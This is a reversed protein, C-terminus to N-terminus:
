AYALSKAWALAMVAENRTEYVKSAAPQVNWVQYRLQSPSGNTLRQHATPSGNTLRQDGSIPYIFPINHNIEKIYIIDM